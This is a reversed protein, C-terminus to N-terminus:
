SWATLASFPISKQKFDFGPVGTNQCLTMWVDVLVRYEWAQYVEWSMRYETIYLWALM